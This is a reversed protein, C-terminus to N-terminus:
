ACEQLFGFATAFRLVTPHYDKASNMSLVYKEASVKAEAYLSLPKLPTTEVALENWKMLGYNSCTSVFIVHSLNHGEFQDICAKVGVDNVQASADPFKKTIPDGVLGGLFIVDTIESLSNTVLRTVFIAMFSILIQFGFLPLVCHNHGYIFNDLIRVGFGRQLHQALMGVYGGGGILLINKM